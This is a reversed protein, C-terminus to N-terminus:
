RTAAYPASQWAAIEPHDQALKALSAALAPVLAGPITVFIHGGDPDVFQIGVAKKEPYLVAGITGTPITYRPPKPAFNM